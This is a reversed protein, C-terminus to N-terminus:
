PFVAKYHDTGGCEFCAKRTATPNRANMSNVIRPEARCDKVFHGLRNCNKCTRCPMKPHRHFNCNTCKPAVGTYERRVPNTILAFTGTRSRKHNDRSPEEGNGRNKTNKRLSGNRIAKDTLMGVKLVASQITTLETAAVMARIQSALGYIYREIRKNKHTVLHPVLRSLKHFRDTYTAYGAGVM